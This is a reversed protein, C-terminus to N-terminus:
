LKNYDTDGQLDSVQNYSIINSPKQMVLSLFLSAPLLNTKVEM